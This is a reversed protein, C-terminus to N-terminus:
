LIGTIQKRSSNGLFGVPLIMFFSRGRTQDFINGGGKPGNLQRTVAFLLEGHVQHKRVLFFIEGCGATFEGAFLQAGQGLFVALGVLNGALHHLGHGPRPQELQQQGHVQATGPDLSQGQAQGPFGEGPHPARGVHGQGHLAQAGVGDGQGAGGLLPLLVQGLHGLALLQGGEGEGLRARSAIDVADFGQGLRHFAAPPEVPLLDEDGIAVRGVEQHGKHAGGLRVIGRARDAKMRSLPM